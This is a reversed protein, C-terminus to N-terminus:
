MQLPRLGLGFKRSIRKRARAERVRALVFGYSVFALAAPQLPRAHTARFTLRSPPPRLPLKLPVQQTSATEFAPPPLAPVDPQALPMHVGRAYPCGLPEDEVRGVGTETSRCSEGM